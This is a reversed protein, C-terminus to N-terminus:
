PPCMMLLEGASFGGAGPFRLTQNFLASGATDSSYGSTSSSGTSSSRNRDRFIDSSADGSLISPRSFRIFLPIFVSSYIPYNLCFSSHTIFRDTSYSWTFITNYRRALPSM